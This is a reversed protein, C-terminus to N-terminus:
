GRTVPGDQNPRREATRAPARPPRAVSPAGAPRGAPSTGRPSPSSPRAPLQATSRSPLTVAPGAQRLGKAKDEAKKRRVRHKRAIDRSKQSARAM